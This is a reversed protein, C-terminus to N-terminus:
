FAFENCVSQMTLVLKLKVFAVGGKIYMHLIVHACIYLILDLYVCLHIGVCVCHYMHCTCLDCDWYICLIMLVIRKGHSIFLICGEAWLIEWNSCRSQENTRLRLPNFETAVYDSSLAAAPGSIFSFERKGISLRPDVLWSQGLLTPWNLFVGPLRTPVAEDWKARIPWAFPLPTQVLDDVLFLEALPFRRFPTFLTSNQKLNELRSAVSHHLCLTYVM